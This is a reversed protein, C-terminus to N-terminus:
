SNKAWNSPRPRALTNWFLWVMVSANADMAIHIQFFATMTTAGHLRSCHRHASRGHPRSCRHHAPRGHPRTCRHHAFRRQMRLLFSVTLANINENDNCHNAHSKHADTACSEDDCSDCLATQYEIADAQRGMDDAERLTFLIL